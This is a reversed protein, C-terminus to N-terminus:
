GALHFALKTYHCLVSVPNGVISLDILSPLVELKEIESLEQPLFSM